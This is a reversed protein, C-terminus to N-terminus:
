NLILLLPSLVFELWSPLSELWARVAFPAKDSRLEEIVGLPVVVVRYLRPLVQKCQIQVLYHLPSTDAVIIM